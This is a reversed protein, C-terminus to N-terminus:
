KGELILPKKMYLLNNKKILDIRILHKKNTFYVKKTEKFFKFM